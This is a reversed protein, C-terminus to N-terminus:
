VIGIAMGVLVPIFLAFEVAAAGDRAGRLRGALNPTRHIM